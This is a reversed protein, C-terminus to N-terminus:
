AIAWQYKLTPLYQCGCPPSSDRLGLEGTPELGSKGKPKSLPWTDPLFPDPSSGKLLAVEPSVNWQPRLRKFSTTVGNVVVFRKRRCRGQEEGGRSRKMPWESCRENRQSSTAILLSSSSAHSRPAAATFPPAYPEVDLRDGNIILRHCQASGNDSNANVTSESSTKQNPNQPREAESERTEGRELKLPFVVQSRPHSRRGRIERIGAM